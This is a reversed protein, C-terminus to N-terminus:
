NFTYYLINDQFMDDYDEYKILSFDFIYDEVLSSNLISLEIQYEIIKNHPHFTM